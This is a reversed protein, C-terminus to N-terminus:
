RQSDGERVAAIFRVSATVNLAVGRWEHGSRDALMAEQWKAALETRLDTM